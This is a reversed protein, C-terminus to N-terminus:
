RTLHDEPMTRASLEIKEPQGDTATPVLAETSCPMKTDFSFAKLTSYVPSPNFTLQASEELKRPQDAPARGSMSIDQLYSLPGYKRIITGPVWKSTSGLGYNRAM